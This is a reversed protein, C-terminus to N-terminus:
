QRADFGTTLRYLTLCAQFAEWGTKLDDPTWEKVAVKDPENRCFYINRCPLFDDHGNAAVFYAALQMCHDFSPIVTDRGKFDKSKFDDIQGTKEIIDATGAYGMSANVVVKEAHEVEVGLDELKHIVPMCFYYDDESVTWPEATYYDEIAAHLATGREAPEMKLKDWKQTISKRWGDQDEGAIAPQDYAIDLVGKISWALLWEKAMMGTYASVSPFLGKRKADAKTTNRQKGKNPGGKITQTHCPNGHINYFHQSM